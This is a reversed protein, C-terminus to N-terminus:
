INFPKLLRDAEIMRGKSDMVRVKSYIWGDIAQVNVGADIFIKPNLVFVIDKDNASIDKAWEFMHGEDFSIGFHDMEAHYKIADRNNSVMADFEALPKGQGSVIEGDWGLKGRIIIKGQGVMGKPLDELILGAKIFPLYDFQMMLEFSDNKGSQRGWFFSASGDPADISWFGAETDYSTQTNSAELLKGFSKVSMRGVIDLGGLLSYSTIIVLAAITALAVIILTNRSM